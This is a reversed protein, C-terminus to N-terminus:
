DGHKVENIVEDAMGEADRVLPHNEVVDGIAAAAERAVEAGHTDGIHDLLGGILGGVLSSIMDKGKWNVM